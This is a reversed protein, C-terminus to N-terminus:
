SCAGFGQTACGLYALEFLTLPLTVLLLVICAYGAILGFTAPRPGTQASLQTRQRAIHGSAVAAISFALCLLFAVVFPIFTQLIRSNAAVVQVGVLSLCCAGGIGDSWGGLRGARGAPRGEQADSAGDM